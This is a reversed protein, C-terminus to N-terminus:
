HLRRDNEASGGCAGGDVWQASKTWLLEQLPADNALDSAPQQARREDFYRGTVAAVEDSLALYLTTLAGREADIVSSFLPKVIRLWLPLLNTAVVGPHLCNVTVPTGSLRRALAFTHLINALKSQAYAAIASYRVRADTVADLDLTRARLHARSAVTVIRGPTDMRDLLLQTLLFPGLHNTAFTLEFGDPSTRRAASTMGANNILVAIKGFDRRVTAASERVSALSALDCRVVHVAAGPTQSLIEERVAQAADTRRCLM